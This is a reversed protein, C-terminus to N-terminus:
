SAQQPVEWETGNNTGHLHLPFTESFAKHCNYIYWTARTWRLIIRRSSFSIAFRFQSNELNIRTSFSITRGPSSGPVEKYNNRLNVHYYVETWKTKLDDRAADDRLFETCIQTMATVGLVYSAFVLKIMVQM